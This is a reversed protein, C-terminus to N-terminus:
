QRWGRKKLEKEEIKALESLVGLVKKYRARQGRMVYNVFDRMILRVSRYEEGQAIFYKRSFDGLHGHAEIKVETM